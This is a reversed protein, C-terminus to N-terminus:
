APVGGPPVRNSHESEGHRKVWLKYPTLALVRIVVYAGVVGAVELARYNPYSQTIITMSLVPHAFAAALVVAKRDEMRPAGAWHGLVASITVLMVLAVVALWATHILKPGVIFLVGVSVAILLVNFLRGCWRALTRALSPFYHGVAIGVVLPPVLKVLLLRFVLSPAARFEVGLLRDVGQVWLPVTVLACLSLLLLLNLSTACSAGLSRAQNVQLPAGPCVAMLLVASAVVTPLRFVHVLAIAVLPVLLLVVLLSRVYLAPRELVHRIDGPRRELGQTFMFLTVINGLVFVALTRLM